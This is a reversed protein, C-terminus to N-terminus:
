EVFILAICFVVLKLVRCDSIPLHLLLLQSRYALVGIMDEVKLAGEVLRVIPSIEEGLISVRCGKHSM